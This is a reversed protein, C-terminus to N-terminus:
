PDKRKIRFARALESAATPPRYIADIVAVRRFRYADALQDVLQAREPNKPAYRYSTPERRELFGAASLQQLREAVSQLSSRVIDFVDSERWWREREGRLLLLIELHDISHFEQAIFRLLEDSLNAM